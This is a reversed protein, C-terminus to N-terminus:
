KVRRFQVPPLKEFHQEASYSKHNQHNETLTDNQETDQSVKICVGCPYFAQKAYEAHNDDQIDDARAAM